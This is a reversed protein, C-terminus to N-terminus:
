KPPSPVGLYSVSKNQTGLSMGPHSDCGYLAQTRSFDFVLTSCSMGPHSSCVPVGYLAQYQPMCASGFGRAKFGFATVPVSIRM